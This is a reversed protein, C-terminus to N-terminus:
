SNKREVSGKGDANLWATTERMMFGKKVESKGRVAVEDERWRNLFSGLLATYITELGKREQIGSRHINRRRWM